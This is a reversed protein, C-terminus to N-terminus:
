GLDAAVGLLAHGHRRAGAILSGASEPHPDIPWTWQRKHQTRGANYEGGQGRVCGFRLGADVHEAM